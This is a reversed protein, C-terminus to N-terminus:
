TSFGFKQRFPILTVHRDWPQHQCRKAGCWLSCLAALGQPLNRQSEPIRGAWALSAPETGFKSYPVLHVAGLLKQPSCEAASVKWFWWQLQEGLQTRLFGVNMTNQSGSTQWSAPLVRPDIVLQLLKPNELHAWNDPSSEWSSCTNCLSPTGSVTGPIFSFVLSGPEWVSAWPAKHLVGIASPELNLARGLGQGARQASQIMNPNTEWRWTKKM